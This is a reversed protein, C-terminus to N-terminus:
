NLKLLTEAAARGEDTLRWALSIGERSRGGHELYAGRTATKRQLGCPHGGHYGDAALAHLLAAGQAFTVAPRAPVQARYAPTQQNARIAATLRAAVEPDSTDVQFVASVHAFNGWFRTINNERKAVFNGYCEFTYNLPETALLTELEAPTNIM